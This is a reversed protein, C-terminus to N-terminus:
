RKDVDCHCFNLRKYGLVFPFVAMCAKNFVEFKVGSPCVIDIAMGSTHRSLDKGGEQYNHQSCRFGSTIILPKDGLILRLEEFREVLPVSVLTRKCHTNDCNCDLERTNLNDSLQHAKGKAFMMM